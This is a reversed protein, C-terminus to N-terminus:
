RYDAPNTKTVKFDLLNDKIDSRKKARFKELEQSALDPGMSDIQRYLQEREEIIANATEANQFIVQLMERSALYVKIEKQSPNFHLYNKLSISITDPEFEEDVNVGVEEDEEEDEEMGGLPKQSSPQPQKKSEKKAGDDKKQIGKMMMYYAYQLDEDQLDLKSVEQPTTIPNDKTVEIIRDLMEDLFNPRKEETKIYFEDDHFLLIMLDKLLLRHQLYYDQDKEQADANVLLRFNINRNSKNKRKERRTQKGTTKSYLREERENFLRREKTTIYNEYQNKVLYSGKFNELQVHSFLGLILLVAFVLTLINM